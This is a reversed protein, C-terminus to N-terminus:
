NTWWARVWDMPLKAVSTAFNSVWNAVLRGCWRVDMARTPMRWSFPSDKLVKTSLNLLTAILMWFRLGSMAMCWMSVARRGPGKASLRHLCGASLRSSSLFFAALHMCSSSSLSNRLWALPSFFLSSFSRWPRGLWLFSRRLSLRSRGIQNELYVGQRGLPSSNHVLSEVGLQDRRWLFHGAWIIDVSPLLTPVMLVAPVRGLLTLSQLILDLFKDLNPVEASKDPVASVWGASCFGRPSCPWWLATSIVSIM